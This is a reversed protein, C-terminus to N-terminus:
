IKVEKQQNLNLRDLPSIFSWLDKTSIYTYVEATKSSKHGLAKHIYKLDVGSELLYIACTKDKLIKIKFDM